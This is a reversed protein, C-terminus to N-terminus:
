QEETQDADHKLLSFLEILDQSNAFVVFWLQFIGSSKRLVFLFLTKEFFICLSSKKVFKIWVFTTLFSRFFDSGENLDPMQLTLRVSRGNCHGFM